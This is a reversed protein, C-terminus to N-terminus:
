EYGYAYNTRELLQKACAYSWRQSQIDGLILHTSEEKLIYNENNCLSSITKGYVESTSFQILHKKHKSCLDIIDLAKTYNINIVEIPNINYKSPNCIAALNIVLDCNSILRNIQNINSIDNKFFLFNNHIIDKIKDDVIDIGYIFHNKELLAKILHHGIFGACGLLFINM